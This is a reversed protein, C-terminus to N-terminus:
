NANEIEYKNKKIINEKGIIVRLNEAVHLGCVNVGKIPIIHDVHWPYGFMRTRLSALEYIDKIRKKHEKDVWKPTALKIEKKRAARLANIKGKNNQRYKKKAALHKERHKYYYERKREKSQEPNNLRYKQKDIRDCEMCKRQAVSRKDLHGHICPVGTFYHTLKKEKAEKRSVIYM